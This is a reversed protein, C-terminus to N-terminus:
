QTFYRMIHGTQRLNITELSWSKKATELCEMAHEMRLDSLVKIEDDQM